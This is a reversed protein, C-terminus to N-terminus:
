SAVVALGIELSPVVKSSVVEVAIVASVGCDSIATESGAGSIVVGAVITAGVAWIAM